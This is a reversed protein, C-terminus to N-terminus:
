PFEARKSHQEASWFHQIPGMAGFASKHELAM